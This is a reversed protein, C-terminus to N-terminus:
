RPLRAFYTNGRSIEHEYVGDGNSSTGDASTNGAIGILPVNRSVIGVHHATGDARVYFFLDEAQPTDSVVYGLALCQVLLADASASKRIPPKGRYAVDLVFSVFSACWSDGSTNGTFRQFLNVWTGANPGETERVYMFRRAIVVLSANM